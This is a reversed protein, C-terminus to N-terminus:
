TYATIRDLEDLDWQLDTEQFMKRAKGFYKKPEIKNLENFKRKPELLRKGVEMYGRSLELRADLREGETISENWCKLTKHQKGIFWRCTGM